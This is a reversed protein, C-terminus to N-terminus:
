GRDVDMEPTPRKAAAELALKFKARSDLRYAPLKAVAEAGFHYQELVLSARAANKPADDALARVQHTLDGRFHLLTGVRPHIVGKLKKERGLVLEGGGCDPVQLYLVSVVRPTTEAEGAARSLTADVHPAVGGATGVLLLNLYWANPKPVRARQWFSQLRSEALGDIALTFFPVLAPLEAEVRARGEATFAVGFGRSTVFAGNLQSSAVFPSGMLAATLAQLQAAPLANKTQRYESM